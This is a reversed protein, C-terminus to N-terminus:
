CFAHRARRREYFKTKWTCISSPANSNRNIQSALFLVMLHWPKLIFELMRTPVGFSADHSWVAASDVM